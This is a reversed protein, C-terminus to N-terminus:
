RYTKSIMSCFGVVLLNVYYMKHTRAWTVRQYSQVFITLMIDRIRGGGQGVMGGWWWGPHVRGLLDNFVFAESKELSILSKDPPTLGGAIGNFVYLLKEELLKLSKGRSTSGGALGNINCYLINYLSKLSEYYVTSGFSFSLTKM